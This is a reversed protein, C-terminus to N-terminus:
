INVLRPDDGAMGAGMRATTKSRSPSMNSVSAKNKRSKVRCVHEHNAEVVWRDQVQELVRISAVPCVVKSRRQMQRRIHFTSNIEEENGIGFEVDKVSSPGPM